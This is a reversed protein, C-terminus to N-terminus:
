KAAVAPSSLRIIKLIDVRKMPAIKRIPVVMETTPDGTIFHNLLGEYEFGAAVKLMENKLIRRVEARQPASIHNAALAVSKIRVRTGDKCTANDSSEVKSSRRRVLRRVASPQVAIGALETYANLGQVSNVKFEVMLQSKKINGTIERGSVYITRGMVNEAEEGPTQGMPSNQFVAPALVTYWKKTKWKDVGKRKRAKSVTPKEQKKNDKEEEVIMQAM